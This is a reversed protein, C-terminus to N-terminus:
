TVPCDARASFPVKFFFLVLKNCVGGLAPPSEEFAGLPFGSTSVFHSLFVLSVADFCFLLWYM